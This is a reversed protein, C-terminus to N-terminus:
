IVWTCLKQGRPLKSLAEFEGATFGRGLVEVYVGDSWTVKGEYMPLTEVGRNLNFGIGIAAKQAMNNVIPIMYKVVNSEHLYYARELIVFIIGELDEGPCDCGRVHTIATSLPFKTVPDIPVNCGWSFYKKNGIDLAGLANYAKANAREQSMSFNMTLNASKSRNPETILITLM